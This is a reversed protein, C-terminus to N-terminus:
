ARVASQPLDRALEPRVGYRREFARAFHDRGRFGWKAGLASVDLPCEGPSSHLDLWARELRLVRISEAVSAPSSRFADQLTRLPVSLQQAISASSLGPDELRSHILQMALVALRQRATVDYDESVAREAAIASLLGRAMIALRCCEEQGGGDSPADRAGLRILLPALAAGLGRTADIAGGGQLVDTEAPTLWLLEVRSVTSEASGSASESGSVSGPVRLAVRAGRVHISARGGNRSGEVDPEIAVEVTEAVLGGQM